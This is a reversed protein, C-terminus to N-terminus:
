GKNFIDGYSVWTNNYFKPNSRPDAFLTRRNPPANTKIKILRQNLKKLINPFKNALNTRECPDKVINFLCPAIRPKCYVIPNEKEKCKINIKKRLHLIKEPLLRQGYDSLVLGARSNLVKNIYFNTHDKYEPIAGLYGDFAGLWTTGTVFKWGDSIISSYSFISDSSTIVETRPSRKNNVIADWMNYGDVHGIHIGAASALTPLVDATHIYGDWIRQNDKILPTYMFGLNRVAGEWPSDKQGRLPYNSGHNNYIGVTPAGNDSYFLIITNDLINADKLADVIQGVGEDVKSIMAALKRRKPNKIHKFKDIEKQPAQLLDYLNGTHPALHNLMMFIPKDGKDHNKIIEVAEDNFLDTAYKGFNEYTVNKNRRFDYGSSFQFHRLEIYTRTYYDILGNYYGFFSDFGRYTPTFEKKFFGLHWKGILHTSYGSRKFYDSMLIENTGLGYAENGSLINQMGITHPYKGTMVSARSPTCVPPTYFRDFIIGNYALADINPTIIENSGRYSADFSGMDDVMLVIVNPKGTGIHAQGYDPSPKETRMKRSNDTSYSKGSHHALFVMLGGVLVNKLTMKYAFQINGGFNAPDSAPDDVFTRRTPAANEDIEVMRQIFKEVMNSKEDALNHRECPDREINFLCPSVLPECTNIPNRNENCDTKGKRRLNSIKGRTLPKGYNELIKGVTSSSIIDAYTKPKLEYEPIIGLYGDYIGGLTTGNVFKWGDSIISAFQFVNDFSTIVETRPSKKDRVIAGWMDYGEVDGIQIGAASALTPLVDATHIYGDWIRQNKKILPSYIFGLNRVAGEWPSHKQGRLPYNSGYNNFLGQSPAGNDSYFLIITNDLINADKLAEVIQGVGEDVKSIMAALIRRNEDEIHNFKDIEEQPAQMLDYENGTHPALHNLMMFLPEDNEDHNKIIKVAEDNFLDTAYKGFDEYTVDKNRRFDYGDSYQPYAIEDYTRNYYDILGNYYGFFSDYGRYTPTFEKKFFGLHWKGILHTSYGGDKFYNSMLKEDPGLAYAENAIVVFNQMGITHPYKGTMVSARSPTCMPPTYFRDLIIGNYALADINPTLIENSGRYSTDYSGMDDLMIIIINPKGNECNPKKKCEGFILFSLIILSIRIKNTKM